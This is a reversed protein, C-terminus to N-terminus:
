LLRGLFSEPQFVNNMPLVTRRPLKAYSESALNCGIFFEKLRDGLYSNEMVLFFDGRLISWPNATSIGLLFTYLSGMSDSFSTFQYVSPELIFSCTPALITIFLLGLLPHRLWLM